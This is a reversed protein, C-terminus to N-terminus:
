VRRAPTLACLDFPIPPRIGHKVTTQLSPFGSQQSNHGALHNYGHQIKM